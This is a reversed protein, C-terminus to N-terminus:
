PRNKWQVKVTKWWQGLLMLGAMAIMLEIIERWAGDLLMAPIVASSPTVMLFVLGRLWSITTGDTDGPKEREFDARTFWRVALLWGLVGGVIRFIAKWGEEAHVTTLIVALFSSCILIVNVWFRSMKAPVLSQWALGLDRLDRARQAEHTQEIV